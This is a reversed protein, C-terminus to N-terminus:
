SSRKALARLEKLEDRDAKLRLNRARRYEIDYKGRKLFLLLEDDSYSKFESPLKLTKTFDGM